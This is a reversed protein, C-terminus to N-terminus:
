SEGALHKDLEDPDHPVNEFVFECPPTHPAYIVTRGGARQADTVAEYLVMAQANTSKLETLEARLAEVEQDIRWASKFGTPTAYQLGYNPDKKAAAQQMGDVQRQLREIEKTQQAAFSDSQQFEVLKRLREVEAALIFPGEDAEFCERIYKMAEDVTMQM